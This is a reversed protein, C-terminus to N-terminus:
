HNTSYLIYWQQMHQSLRTYTMGNQHNAIVLTPTGKQPINEPNDVRFKRYYVINHAMRLYVMLLDYKWSPQDINEFSIM